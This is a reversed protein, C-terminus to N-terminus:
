HFIDNAMCLKLSSFFRAFLALIVLYIRKLIEVQVTVTLASRSWSVLVSFILCIQFCFTSVIFNRRSRTSVYRRLFDTWIDCQQHGGCLSWAHLSSELAFFCFCFFWHICIYVKLGFSQFYKESSPSSSTLTIYLPYEITLRQIHFNNWLHSLIKSIKM